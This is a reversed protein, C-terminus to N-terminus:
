NFSGSPPLLLPQFWKANRQRQQIKLCIQKEWVHAIRWARSAPVLTSCIPYKQLGLETWFKWQTIRDSGLGSSRDLYKIWDSKYGFFVRTFCYVATILAPKSIWIQDPQNKWFGIWVPGTRFQLIRNSRSRSVPDHEVSATVCLPVAHPQLAHPQMGLVSFNAM